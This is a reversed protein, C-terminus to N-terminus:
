QFSPLSDVLAAIQTFRFRPAVDVKVEDLQVWASMEGADLWRASAFPVSNTMAYFAQAEAADMGMARYYDIYRRNEPANAAYDSPELGTDDQWSHVAFQAGPDAYRRVGALFLEVGGSRVSGGAPVHTVIGKRRIMQGVQLNALDDETGPCDIMEITAIGPHDRLMATFQEPTRGDTVDVLAARGEDLVRFPGYAPGQIAPTEAPISFLTREGGTVVPDAEGIVTEYVIVQASLPSVACLAFLALSASLSRM